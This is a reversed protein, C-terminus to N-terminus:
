GTKSKVDDVNYLKVYVLWLKHINNIYNYMEKCTIQKDM